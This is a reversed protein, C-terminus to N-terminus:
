PNWISAWEQQISERDNSVSDRLIFRAASLPIFTASQSAV